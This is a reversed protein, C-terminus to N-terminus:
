CNQFIRFTGLAVGNEDERTIVASGLKLVIRKCDKLESRTLLPGLKVGGGDGNGNGNKQQIFWTQSLCRQSKLCIETLKKKAGRLALM